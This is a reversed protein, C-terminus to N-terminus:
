KLGSGGGPLLLVKRCGGGGIRTGGSSSPNVKVPLMSVFARQFFKFRM